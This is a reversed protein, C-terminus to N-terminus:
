VLSKRRVDPQPVRGGPGGVSLRRVDAGTPAHAILGGPVQQLAAHPDGAGIGPAPIRGEHMRRLFEGLAVIGRQDPFAVLGAAMDAVAVELLQLIELRLDSSCVDSSWDSIRM